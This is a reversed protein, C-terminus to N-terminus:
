SVKPMKSTDIFRRGEKDEVVSKRLGEVAREGTWGAKKVEKFWEEQVSKTDTALPLSRGAVVFNPRYFAARRAPEGCDCLAVEVSYGARRTFQHGDQCTFDYVPM